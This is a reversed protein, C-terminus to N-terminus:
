RGLQYCSYLKEEINVLILTIPDQVQRVLFYVSKVDLQLSIFKRDKIYMSRRVSKLQIKFLEGTREKNQFVQIQGDIGWDKNEASYVM